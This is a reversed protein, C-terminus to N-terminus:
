EDKSRKFKKVLDNYYKEDFMDTDSSPMCRLKTVYTCTAFHRERVEYVLEPFKAPVILLPRYKDDVDVLFFESIQLLDPNELMWLQPIRVTRYGQGEDYYIHKCTDAHCRRKWSYMGITGGAEKIMKLAAKSPNLLRLEIFNQEDAKM